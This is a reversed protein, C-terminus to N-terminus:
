GIAEGASSGMDFACTKQPCTVNLGHEVLALAVEETEPSEQTQLSSLSLKSQQELMYLHFILSFHMWIQQEPFM